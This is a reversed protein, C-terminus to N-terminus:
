PFNFRILEPLNPPIATLTVALGHFQSRSQRTMIYKLNLSTAINQSEFCVLFTNAQIGIGM